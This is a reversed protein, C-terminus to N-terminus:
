RRAIKRKAAPAAQDIRRLDEALKPAFIQEFQDLLEELTPPENPDAPSTACQAKEVNKVSDAGTQEPQSFSRGAAVPRSEQEAEDPKLDDKPRTAWWAGVLFCLSGFLSMALVVFGASM